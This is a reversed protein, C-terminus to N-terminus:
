ILIGIWLVNVILNYGMEKAIQQLPQLCCAYFQPKAKIPKPEM